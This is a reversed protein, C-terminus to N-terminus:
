GHPASGNLAGAPTDPATPPVGAPLRAAPVAPPAPPVAGGRSRQTAPTIGAGTTLNSNGRGREFAALEARIKRATAQGCGHKAQLQRLTPLSAPVSAGASATEPGPARVRRVHWLVIEVAIFFCVPVLGDILADLVTHALGAGVNAALTMGAGLVLGAVAWRSRGVGARAAEWASLLSFFLLGDPIAPYAYAIGGTNGAMRAVSLADTYSIWGIIGAFLVGAVIYPWGRAKATGSATDEQM